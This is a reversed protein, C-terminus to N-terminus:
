VHARGIQNMKNSEASQSAAHRKQLIEFKRPCTRSNHKKKENCISCARKGEAVAEHGKENLGSDPQAQNEETYVDQKFEEDDGSDQSAEESSQGDEEGTGTSDEKANDESDDNEDDTALIEENADKKTFSQHALVKRICLNLDAPPSTNGHM